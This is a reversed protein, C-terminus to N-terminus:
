RALRAQHAHHLGAGLGLLARRQHLRVHLTRLRERGRRLVEPGQRVTAEPLADVADARWGGDHPAALVLDHWGGVRLVEQIADGARLDPPHPCGAELQEQLLWVRAEIRRLRRKPRSGSLARARTSRPTRAQSVPPSVQSLALPGRHWYELDPIRRPTHRVR